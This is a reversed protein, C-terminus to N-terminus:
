LPGTQNVAGTARGPVVVRAHVTGTPLPIRKMPRPLSHEFRSGGGNKPSVSASSRAPAAAPSSSNKPSAVCDIGNVADLHGVEIAV